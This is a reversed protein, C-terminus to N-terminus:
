RRNNPDLKAAALGAAAGVRRIALVRDFVVLAGWAVM